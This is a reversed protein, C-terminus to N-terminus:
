IGLESKINDKGEVYKVIKKDKIKILTPNSLKLETLSKAGPNGKESYYDKNFENDLNIYYIRLSKEKAQYSSLYSNYIVGNNDKSDFALVYYETEPRNFISGVLILNYDVAGKTNNLESNKDKNIHNTILWIGAIVIVVGVLIKIFSSIEQEDSNKIKAM